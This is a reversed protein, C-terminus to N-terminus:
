TIKFVKSIKATKQLNFTIYSMYLANLLKNKYHKNEM